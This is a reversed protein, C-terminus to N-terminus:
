FALSVSEYVSHEKEKKKQTAWYAKQRSLHRTRIGDIETKLKTYDDTNTYSAISEILSKGLGQLNMLNLKQASAQSNTEYTCCISGFHKNCWGCLRRDLFGYMWIDHSTKYDTIHDLIYNNMATMAAKRRQDIIPCLINATTEASEVNHLGCVIDLRNGQAIWSDFFRTYAITEVPLKDNVKSLLFSKTINAWTSNAMGDPDFAPLLLINLKKRVNAADVDDSLLFRLCGYCTWNADHENGDEAYLVITPKELLKQKDSEMTNRLIVVNLDRGAASKGITCVDVGKPKFKHIQAVCDDAVANVYPIRMALTASCMTFKQVVRFINLEDNAETADVNKWPIWTTGGDTLFQNALAPSIVSQIPLLGNGVYMSSKPILPNGSKWRGDSGKKYWEYSAANIPNAYSFVPVLCHWKKVDAVNDQNANFDMSLGIKLEADIPLNIFNAGWYNHCPTNMKVVVQGDGIIDEISLNFGDHQVIAIQGPVKADKLVDPKIEDAPVSQGSFFVLIIVALVITTFSYYKM